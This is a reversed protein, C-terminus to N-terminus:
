ASKQGGMVCSEMKNFGDAVANKFDECGKKNTRVWENFAKKGEDPLWIAQEMFTNMVKETQDWFMLMSNLMGDVTAKQLQFVEKAMRMQDM